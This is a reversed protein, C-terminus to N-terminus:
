WIVTTLTEVCFAFNYVVVSMIFRTWPQGEFDHRLWARKHSNILKDLNHMLPQM